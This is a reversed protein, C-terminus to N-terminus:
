SETQNLKEAKQVLEELWQGFEKRMEIPLVHGQTPIFKKTVGSAEGGLRDLLIEGHPFTIM